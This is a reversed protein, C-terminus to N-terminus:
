PPVVCEPTMSPRRIISVEGSGVSFAFAAAASHLMHESVSSFLSSTTCCPPRGERISMSTLGEGSTGKMCDAAAAHMQLRAALTLLLSYMASEPARLTRTSTRLLSLWAAPACAAPARQDRHTSLSLLLCRTASAPAMMGRMASSLETSVNACLWLAPARESHEIRLSVLLRRMESCPAMTGRTLISLEDSRETWRRAEQASQLTQALWSPLLLCARRTPARGTSTLSMEAECTGSTREGTAPAMQLRDIFHGSFLASNTCSPATGMSWCSTAEGMGERWPLASAARSCSSSAQDHYRPNAALPRRIM